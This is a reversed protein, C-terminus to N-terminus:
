HSPNAAGDKLLGAQFERRIFRVLGGIQEPTLRKDFAPMGDGGKAIQRAFQADTHNLGHGSKFSPVKLTGGDGMDTLGGEGTDKHCRVCAANYTARAAALEDAPANTATAPSAGAPTTNPNATQQSNTAQQSNATQQPSHNSACAVAFATVTCLLLLLKLHKM